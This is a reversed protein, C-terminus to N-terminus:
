DTEGLLIDRMRRGKALTERYEALPDSDAVIGGGVQYHVQGGELVLTRIAINFDLHGDDSLYGIAGTYVGRRCRELEDIIQMARIKPAGTISGGPFMARLLDLADRKSHLKGTVTSVLHHVNSYSEVQAHGAVKVSGYDCVRGLDNRELDVIMTLEARDKESAGLDARLLLDHITDRGRPRTGKIPRTEVSGTPDKSVFREPSTSVISWDAHRLFAGFPAPSQEFCREYLVEPKSLFPASFRHSLNAQFIDGARIYELVREVSGCYEDPSFQSTPLEAVLKSPPDIVPPQSAALGLFQRAREKQKRPGEAFRDVAVVNLERHLQDFVAFTDYYALYLDPLKSDRPLRRPLKELLPALDYGFFGIWGGAFPGQEEQTTATQKLLFRLARFPPLAPDPRAGPWDVSLDWKGDVVQFVARPLAALYSWRGLAGFGPASELIACGDVRALGSRLASLGLPAPRYDTVATAM